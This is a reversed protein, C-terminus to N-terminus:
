APTGPGLVSRDGTRLGAIINRYAGAADDGLSDTDLWRMGRDGRDRDVGFLGFRPQYSGWEYNDVLSWHWYGAVPIGRRRRGGGRRHEGEPVPASGM